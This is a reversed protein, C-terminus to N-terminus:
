LKQLKKAAKPLKPQYIFFVCASNVNSKTVQLAMKSIGTEICEISKRM